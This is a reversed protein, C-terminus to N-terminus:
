FALVYNFYYSNSFMGFESDDAGNQIMAGLSFTNFDNLTYTLAPTLYRSNKDNFSEIYGLSGDLFLNFSYLLSSGIYFNSYLLNPLIESNINILIEDYDFSQSSYLAEVTLTIGNEFGYDAGIIGQSFEIEEIGELTIHLSNEIYAGESRVEIGTDALNAEIEYGAMKTEDSSVFNLAIDAFELYAKYRLAYKFTFDEKQSAVVTIHSTDGIHRTYSIATVPFIEDPELAYANRPNFLNTPNWIRGVGMTINQLGIVVRNDEDEYGGYFRYLKAYVNGEYYDHYNSQTAFSTDSKLLKVYEFTPSSVYDHGLYNVGDGIVTAFFNERAYDARLRLRDYNYLYSTDDNPFISGQSITFNTNTVSYDIDSFLKCTLLVVIWKAKM